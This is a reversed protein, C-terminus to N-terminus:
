FALEHVMGIFDRVNFIFSDDAFSVGVHRLNCLACLFWRQMCPKMCFSCCSCAVLLVKSCFISFGFKILVASNVVDNLKADGFSQVM